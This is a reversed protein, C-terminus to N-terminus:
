GFMGQSDYQNLQLYESEQWGLWDDQQLLKGRNLKMVRTIYNLVDGDEIINYPPKCWLYDAVMSFGLM